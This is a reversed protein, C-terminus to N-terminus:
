MSRCPGSAAEREAHQAAVLSEQLKWKPRMAFYDASTSPLEKEIKPEKLALLHRRAWSYCNDGTSFFSQNGTLAYPLLGKEQDAIMAKYLDLVKERKLQWVHGVLSELGRGQIERPNLFVQLISERESLLLDNYREINVKAFGKEVTEDGIRTVLDFRWFFCRGFADMGEVVIFTHESNSRSEKDRVLGVQWLGYSLIARSNLFSSVDDHRVVARDFGLERSINPKSEREPEKGEPVSTVPQVFPMPTGYANNQELLLKNKNSLEYIGEINVEGCVLNLKMTSHILKFNLGGEEQFIRFVLTEKDEKENQWFSFGDEPEDSAILFQSDQTVRLSRIIIPLRSLHFLCKKTAIDFVSLCFNVDAVALWNKKANLVLGSVYFEASLEMLKKGDTLRYISILKGDASYTDLLWEEDASFHILPNIYYKEAKGHKIKFHLRYTRLDWVYTYIYEFNFFSILKAYHALYKGKSNIFFRSTLPISLNKNEYLLERIGEILTHQAPIKLNKNNEEINNEIFLSLTKLGYCFQLAQTKELLTVRLDIASHPYCISVENRDLPWIYLTDGSAVCVHLVDTCPLFYLFNQEGFYRNSEPIPLTYLHQGSDLDWLHLHRSSRGALLNNQPSFALSMCKQKGAQNKTLSITNPMLYELNDTRYFKISDTQLLALLHSNQSQENENVVRSLAFCNAQFKQAPILPGNIYDLLSFLLIDEQKTTGVLIYGENCASLERFATGTYEGLFRHQKTDWLQLHKGDYISKESEYSMVIASIKTLSIGMSFALYQGQKYCFTVCQSHYHRWTDPYKEIIPPTFYLRPYNKQIHILGISSGAACAFFRNNPHLVAVIQQTYRDVEWEQLLKGEPYSYQTVYGGAEGAKLPIVAAEGILLWTGNSSV